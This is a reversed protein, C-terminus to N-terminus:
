EAAKLKKVANKLLPKLYHGTYSRALDLSFSHNSARNAPELEFFPYSDYSIFDLDRGLDGRYDSVPHCGNHTVWWGSNATM